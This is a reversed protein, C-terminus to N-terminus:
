EGDKAGAIVEELLNLYAAFDRRGTQTVRYTTRPIRGVFEKTVDIYGEEELKRVHLALNGKTLKLQKLLDNFDLGDRRTVLLSMIGLRAREHFIKSLAFVKTAESM